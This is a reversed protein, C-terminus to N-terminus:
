SKIPAFYSDITKSSFQNIYSIKTITKNQCLKKVQTHYRKALRDCNMEVFNKLSDSHIPKLKTVILGPDVLEEMPTCFIERARQYNFNEPVIYKQKGTKKNYYKIYNIIGEINVYKKIMTYAGDKALGEIKCTYDCGCLICLDVFQEMTLGMDKLINGLNFEQIYKYSVKFNNIFICAGNPLLDTDESLCAQVLGRQCMKACLIEAEGDADLYPVGFLRFLEKASSIHEPSVWILKRNIDFLQKQLMKIENPDDTIDLKKEIQEKLALSKEKKIKRENIVEYKEDPPKGDFIYLPTIGNELLLLIQRVFGSLHNGYALFRYFYISTDIAVTKNAYHSLNRTAIGNPSHKRILTKLDKIGM